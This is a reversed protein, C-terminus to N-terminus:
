RTEKGSAFGLRVPEQKDFDFSDARETTAFVDGRPHEPEDPQTRELVITFTRKQGEITVRM